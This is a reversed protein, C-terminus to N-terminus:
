AAPLGCARLLVAHEPRMDPETPIGDAGAPLFPHARLMVEGDRPIAGHLMGNSGSFLENVVAVPADRDAM